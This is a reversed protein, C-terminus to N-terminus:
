GNGLWKEILMRDINEASDAREPHWQIGIMPCDPHYVGEVIGDRAIAFPLLEASLTSEPVANSHFSNTNASKEGLYSQYEADVIDFDHTVGVHSRSALNVDKLNRIIHGDFYANLIQMGRCVGLIPKHYRLAYEIIAYETADREKSVDDIHISREYEDVPGVNNGGILLLASFPIDKLLSAVLDPQNPILVPLINYQSFLKHWNHNIADRPGRHDDTTIVRLSVGVVKTM